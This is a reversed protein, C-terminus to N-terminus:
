KPLHLLSLFYKQFSDASFHVPDFSRLIPHWDTGASGAALWCTGGPPLIMKAKQSLAPLLTRVVLRDGPRWWCGARLDCVGCLVGVVTGCLM